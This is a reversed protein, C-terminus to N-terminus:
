FIQIPAGQHELHNYNRALHLIDEKQIFSVLCCGINRPPNTDRGLPRLARHCREMEFPADPPRGLSTNFVAWVASQLQPGEVSEPIGRVRLNRRRGRNDLDEMHQHVDILYQAHPSTDQQVQQIAAGHSVTVSELHDLHTAVGKLNIKLDSNAASLTNKIDLAVRQRDALSPLPLPQSAQVDVRSAGPVDAITASGGMSRDLAQSPSQLDMHQTCSMAPINWSLQTSPDM